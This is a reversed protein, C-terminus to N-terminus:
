TEREMASLVSAITIAEFELDDESSLRADVPLVYNEGGMQMGHGAYFFLAIEAGDLDKIFRRVISRMGVYSHDESHHM